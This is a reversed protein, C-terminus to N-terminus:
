ISDNPGLTVVLYCFSLRIGSVSTEYGLIHDDEKITTRPTIHELIPSIIKINTGVLENSKRTLSFGTQSPIVFLDYHFDQTLGIVEYIGPRASSPKSHTVELYERKGTLSIFVLIAKPQIQNLVILPSEM